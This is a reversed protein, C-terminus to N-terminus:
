LIWFYRSERPTAGRELGFLPSRFITQSLTIAGKLDIATFYTVRVAGRAAIPM